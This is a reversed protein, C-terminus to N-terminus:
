RVEDRADKKKKGKESLPPEADSVRKLGGLSYGTIEGRKVREWTEPTWQMAVIWSGEPIWDDGLEKGFYEHIDCPAIYSEVPNGDGEKWSHETDSMRYDSLWAHAAREIVSKEDRSYPAWEKQLDSENPSYVVGVTIRDEDMMGKIAYQPSDIAYEDVRNKFLSELIAKVLSADQTDGYLMVLAAADVKGLARLKESIGSYENVKMGFSIANHAMARAALEDMGGDILRAYVTLWRARQDPPYATQAPAGQEYLPTVPVQKITGADPDAIAPSGTVTVAEM